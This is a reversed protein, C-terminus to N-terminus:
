SSIFVSGASRARTNMPQAATGTLPRVNGIWDGRLHLRSVGARSRADDDIARAAIHEHDHVILAQPPAPIVARGEYAAVAPGDTAATFGAPRQLGVGRPFPERTEHNIAVARHRCSPPFVHVFNLVECRSKPATSQASV